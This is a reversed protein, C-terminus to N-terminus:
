SDLESGSDEGRIGFGDAGGSRQVLIAASVLVGSLSPGFVRIMTGDTDVQADHERLLDGILDAVVDKALRLDTFTLLWGPNDTSQITLGLHHEWTGNCHVHFWKDLTSVASKDDMSLSM